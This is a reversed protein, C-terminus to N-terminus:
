VKLNFQQVISKAVEEQDDPVPVRVTYSQPPYAFASYVFVLLNTGRINELAVSTLSSGFIAWTHLKRNLYVGDRSIFVEGVFRMNQRYYYWASFQWAFAVLAILGLMVLFVYFGSEPDIAWFLFGFFLAFGSVVIFLGKKEAKEETYEKGAYEMWKEHTYTWHVLLGHGRLMRDLIGALMTYFVAVAIGSIGILLCVLSVAFGGSMGEIGALGPVFIFISGIIGIILWVIATKRLPNNTV